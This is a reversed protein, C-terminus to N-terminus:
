PSRTFDVLEGVFHLLSDALMSRPHQNAKALIQLLGKEMGGLLLAKRQDTKMRFTMRQYLGFFVQCHDHKNPVLPSALNSLFGSVIEEVPKDVYHSRVDDVLVSQGSIDRTISSVSKDKAPAKNPTLVQKQSQGKKSPPKRAKLELSLVTQKSAVFQGFSKNTIISNQSPM